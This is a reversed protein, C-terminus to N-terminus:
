KLNLGIEFLLYENTGLFYPFQWQLRPRIYWGCFFKNERKTNWGWEVAPSVIGYTIGQVRKFSVPENIKASYVNPVWTQLGGFGFSFRSYRKENKSRVHSVEGQFWLGSQYNRHFYFGTRAGIQIAKEITKGNKREKKVTKITKLAGINFGPHVINGGSYGVDLKWTKDLQGYFIM